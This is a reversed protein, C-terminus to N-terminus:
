PRQDLLHVRGVERPEAVAELPRRPAATGIEIRGFLPGILARPDTPSWRASRRLARTSTARAM